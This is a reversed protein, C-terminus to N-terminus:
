SWKWLMFNKERRTRERPRKAAALGMGDESVVSTTTRSVSGLVEMTRRVTKASNWVSSSATAPSVGVGRAIIVEDPGAPWSGVELKTGRRSWSVSASFVALVWSEVLARPSM